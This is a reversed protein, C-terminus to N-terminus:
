VWPLCPSDIVVRGTSDPWTKGMRWVGEAWGDQIVQTLGDKSPLGEGSTLLRDPRLVAAHLSGSKQSQAREGSSHSLALNRQLQSGM